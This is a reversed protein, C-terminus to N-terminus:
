PIGVRFRYNMYSFIVGDPIIEELRLRDTVFQGEKMMVGNVRVTRSSPEESYLFVSFSFDPLRRRLADPLEQLSYLRNEDPPPIGQEADSASPTNPPANTTAEHIRGEGSRVPIDRAKKIEKLEPTRQVSKGDNPADYTLAQNHGEAGASMEPVSQPRSQGHSATATQNVAPQKEPPKKAYWIGFWLGSFLTGFLLLVVALYNRGPRAKKELSHPEQVALPDPVSARKRERESKRLADLIYSM